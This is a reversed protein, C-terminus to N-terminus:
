SGKMGDIWEGISYSREIQLWACAIFADGDQIFGVREVTYDAGGRDTTRVMQGPLPMVEFSYDYGQYDGDDHETPPVFLRIKM